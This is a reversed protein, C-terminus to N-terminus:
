ETLTSIKARLGELEDQVAQIDATCQTAAQQVQQMIAESGKTELSHGDTQVPIHKYDQARIQSGTTHPNNKQRNTLYDAWGHL